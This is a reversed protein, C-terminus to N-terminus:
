PLGADPSPYPFGLGEAGEESFGLASFLSRYEAERSFTDTGDHFSQPLSMLRINGPLLAAPSPLIPHLALQANIIDPYSLRGDADYGPFEAQTRDILRAQSASRILPILITPQLSAPLDHGSTYKTFWCLYSVLQFMQFSEGPVHLDMLIWTPDGSRAMRDRLDVTQGVLRFHWMIVQIWQCLALHEDPPYSPLHNKYLFDHTACRHVEHVMLRMRFQLFGPLGEAFSNASSLLQERPLCLSRLFPAAQHILSAM